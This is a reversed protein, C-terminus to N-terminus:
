AVESWLRCTLNDRCGWGPWGGVLAGGCEIHWTEAGAMHVLPEKTGCPSLAFARASWRPPFLFPGGTSLGLRMFIAIPKVQSNDCAHLDARHCCKECIANLGSGHATGLTEVRVPRKQM